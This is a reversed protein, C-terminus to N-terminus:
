LPMIIQIEGHRMPTQKANGTSMLVGIFRSPGLCARIAICIEFEVSCSASIEPSRPFTSGATTTYKAEVQWERAASLAAMFAAKGRAALMPQVVAPSIDDPLIAVHEMTAM